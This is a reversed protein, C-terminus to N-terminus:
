LFPLNISGTILLCMSSAACVWLFLLLSLLSRQRPNMGLFPGRSPSANSSSSLDEEFGEAELEDLFNTSDSDDLFDDLM